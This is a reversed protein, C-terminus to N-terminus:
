WQREVPVPDSLHSVRIQKFVAIGVHVQIPTRCWVIRECTVFIIVSNFLKIFVMYYNWSWGNSNWNGSYIRCFFFNRQWLQEREVFNFQRPLSYIFNVVAHDCLWIGPCLTVQSWSRSYLSQLHFWPHSLPRFFRLFSHTSHFSVSDVSSFGIM